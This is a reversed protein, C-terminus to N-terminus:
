VGVEPMARNKNFKNSRWAEETLFFIREGEDRGRLRPITVHEFGYATFIRLLRTNRESVRTIAMQCGIQDFCYGFMEALVPRTLWRPSDAAAHLEIVGAEPQYNNFVVVAILQEGEFVGMTVYPAEFPRPLGIKAACWGALAQNLDHNDSGAWIPGIM